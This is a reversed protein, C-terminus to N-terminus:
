WQQLPGLTPKGQCHSSACLYSESSPDPPFVPAKPGGGGILRSAQLCAESQTPLVSLEHGPLM